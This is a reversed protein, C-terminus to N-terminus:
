GWVSSSSSGTVGSRLVYGFSTVALAQLPIQADTCRSANLAMALLNFCGLQEETPLLILFFFHATNRCHIIVCGAFLLCHQHMSCCPLARFSLAISFLIFGDDFPLCQPIGHM